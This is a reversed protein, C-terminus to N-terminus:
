DLSTSRGESAAPTLTAPPDVAAAASVETLRASRSAALAAEAAAVRARLGRMSLGGLLVTVGAGLVLAAFLVYVLHVSPATLGLFVLRVSQDNEVAGIAVALGLVLAGLFRVM